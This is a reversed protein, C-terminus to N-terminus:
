FAPLERRQVGPVRDGRRADLGDIASSTSQEARRELVAARLVVVAALGLTVLHTRYRFGTGANGVALAYAVMLFFFPYLLPGARALVEGRCLIAFRILLLFCALAVLSGAVGLAQNTDGLQWPYPQLLLDGVRQPLNSLIASRSSFDVQELALNNGNSSGNGKTSTANENQSAQLNQQLNSPSSAQLLVPTAVFLIGAVAYIVPLSRLGSGLQRLAAHLTILLACALIFWGVYHRTGLAVLGGALMIALGGFELKRWVKVAGFVLLGSALEMLPDKHLIQNFFLSAIELSLLWATLRAARAGVLDYVATAILIVGALAIGVQAIRLAGEPSGLVRLQLAFVLVHLYSAHDWPFWQGSTLSLPAIQHAQTMFTIEDGGRLTSGIGTWSVAAIVVLRLVYGVALPAGIALEPRSRRLLRVLLALGFAGALATILVCEVNIVTAAM